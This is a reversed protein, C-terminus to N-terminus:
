AVKKYYSHAVYWTLPEVPRYEYRSKHKLFTVEYREIDKCIRLIMVYAGNVEDHIIDGVRFKPKDGRMKTM